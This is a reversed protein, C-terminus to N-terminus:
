KYKNGCVLKGNKPTCSYQLIKLNNKSISSNSKEVCEKLFSTKVIESNDSKVIQNLLGNKSLENYSYPSITFIKSDKFYLKLGGNYNFLKLNNGKSFVIKDTLKKIKYSFFNINHLDNTNLPISIFINGKMLELDIVRKDKGNTVVNFKFASNSSLCIKTKNSLILLTPLLSSKLYDGNKIKSNKSLVSRQGYIDLIFIPNEVQLLSIKTSSFALNSKALIFIIFLLYRILM